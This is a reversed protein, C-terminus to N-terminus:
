QSAMKRARKERWRHMRSGQPQRPQGIPDETERKKNKMSTAHPHPYTADLQISARGAFAIKGGGAEGVSVKILHLTQGRDM